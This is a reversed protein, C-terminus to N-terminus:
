WIDNDRKQLVMAMSRPLFKMSDPYVSPSASTTAVVRFGAEEAMTILESERRFEAIHDVEAATLAGTVFAYSRPKLNAALNELLTAPAELHELLFCSIGADATAEGNYELADNVMYSARDGYGATAAMKSTLEVSTESIDIGQLNWGARQKLMLMGWIGSGCGLDLGHGTDGLRSVFEEHFFKYIRLHHDWVFNIVYVGWHYQAMHEANDYVADYVEAYTKNAYAGSREYKMQARNVDTVYIAYGKALISAFDDGLSVKAWAIMNDGAERFLAENSELGHKVTPWFLPYRKELQGLFQDLDSASTNTM